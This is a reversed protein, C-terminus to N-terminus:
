IYIIGTGDSHTLEPKPFACCKVVPFRNQGFSQKVFGPLISYYDRSNRYATTASDAYACTQPAHGAIPVPELGTSRVSSGSDDPLKKQACVPIRVASVMSTYASPEQRIKGSSQKTALLPNVGTPRTALLSGGRPLQSRTLPSQPLSGGRPLQCRRLGIVSPTRQVTGREGETAQRRCSGGPPLRLYQVRFRLLVRM